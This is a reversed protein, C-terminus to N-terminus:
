NFFPGLYKILFYWMTFLFIPQLILNHFATLNCDSKGLITCYNICNTSHISGQIHVSFKKKGMTFTQDRLINIEM